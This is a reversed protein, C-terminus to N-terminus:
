FALSISTHVRSHDNNTENLRKIDKLQIGYDLKINLYAEINYRFGFGFSAIPSNKKTYIAQDINYAYGFDLFTLLQLSDKKIKRLLFNYNPSRFENKLYFGNDSILENEKYGRITTAGGLFLQETPVLKGSALQIKLNTALIFSKIFTNIDLYTNIYYYNSKAGQRQQAFYSDKNFHTMNGPSIYNDLRFQLNGFTNQYTLEYSLIFQSVDVNTNSILSGIFSLFNNTRKFDYGATLFHNIKYFIFPIKYKGTLNWGSGSPTYDGTTKTHVRSVFGNFKFIHDWPLVAIYDAAHGHWENTTTATIFQYNLHHDLNFVNGWNFGVIYRTDGAILNGTNDYLAYVRFPLKDKIDFIINSYGYKSGAEIISMANRFPNFNIFYLSKSLDNRNIYENEKLSIYKKINKKSFYKEKQIKISELKAINIIFIVSGDTIDQDALLTVSVLFYGRKKYFEIVQKKIDDLFHVSIPKNLNISLEQIFKEKDPVFLDVLKIKKGAYPLLHIDEQKEPHSIFTISNLNQVIIKNKDTDHNTCYTFNVFFIFVFLFYKM